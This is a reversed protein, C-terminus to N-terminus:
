SVLKNIAERIAQNKSIGHKKAYSKLKDAEDKEIEYTEKVKNKYQKKRGAGKRKGGHLRKVEAVGSIEEFQEKTIITETKEVKSKLKQCVYGEDDQIYILKDGSMLAKELEEKEEKGEKELEAKIEPDEDLIDRFSKTEIDKKM